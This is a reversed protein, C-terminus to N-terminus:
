PIHTKEPFCPLRKEKLSHGWFMFSLGLIIKIKNRCNNKMNGNYQFFYSFFDKTECEHKFLLM